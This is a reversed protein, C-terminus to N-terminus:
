RALVEVDHMCHEVRGLIPQSSFHHTVRREYDLSHRSVAVQILYFAGNLFHLLVSGRRSPAGKLHSDRFSIRRQKRAKIQERRASCLLYAGFACTRRDM